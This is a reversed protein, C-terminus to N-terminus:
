TPWAKPKTTIAALQRALAESWDAHRELLEIGQTALALDPSQRKSQASVVGLVKLYARTKTIGLQAYEPPLKSTLSLAAAQLAAVSNRKLDKSGARLDKEANAAAKADLRLKYADCKLATAKAELRLSIAQAQLEKVRDTAAAYEAYQKIAAACPNPTASM